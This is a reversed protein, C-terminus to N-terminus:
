RGERVGEFYAHCDRCRFQSVILQSGFLSELETNASGCFTCVPSNPTPLQSNPSPPSSGEGGGGGGAATGSGGPSPTSVPEVPPPVLTKRLTTM